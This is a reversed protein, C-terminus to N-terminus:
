CYNLYEREPGSTEYRILAIGRAYDVYCVKFNDLCHKDQYHNIALDLSAKTDENLIKYETRM